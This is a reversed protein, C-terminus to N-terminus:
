SFVGSTEFMTAVVSLMHSIPFGVPIGSTNVNLITNCPYDKYATVDVKNGTFIKDTILRNQKKNGILDPSFILKQMAIKRVKATNKVIMLSEMGCDDSLTGYKVIYKIVCTRTLPKVM